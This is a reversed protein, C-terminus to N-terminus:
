ALTKLIQNWVLGQEDWIQHWKWKPEGRLRVDTYNGTREAKVIEDHNVVLYETLRILM